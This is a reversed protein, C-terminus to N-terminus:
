SAEMLLRESKKSIPFVGGMKSDLLILDYDFALVPRLQKKVGDSPVLKILGLSELLKCDSLVHPYKRSVLKELKYVSEPKLRSIVRLIELKNQGIARKFTELSDFILENTKTPVFNKGEFLSDNIDSLFEDRNRFSIKLSKLAM